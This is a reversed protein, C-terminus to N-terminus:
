PSSPSRHQTSVIAVPLAVATAVLGGVVVPNNLWFKASSRPPAGRVADGGAVMLVGQKASPPAMGPAWLRYIGRSNPTVIQYVGGRVNAVSFRGQQDTTVTAIERNQVDELSVRVGALPNGQAGLLQGALLGGEGLAIDTIVPAPNSTQEAAWGTTATAVVLTAL